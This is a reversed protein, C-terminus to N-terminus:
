ISDSNLFLSMKEFLIEEQVPKSMYDNCGLDMIKKKDSPMAYATQAIIPLNPHMPRLKELVEYGTMYPMKIDLLIIDPLTHEIIEFVELGNKAHLVKIGTIELYEVLLFYNTLEDEAIIVTKNSWDM